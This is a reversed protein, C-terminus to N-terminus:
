PREWLTKGRYIQDFLAKDERRLRALGEASEIIPSLHRDIKKQLIRLVDKATRAQSTLIFLDVDSEPGDSGEAVSGFLIIRDTHEKLPEILESIEHVNFLVKFERAVPNLLNFRYFKMGGKVEVDLLHSGELARLITSAAGISVHAEEAVERTYLSKEPDRSLAKLIALTAATYRTDNM